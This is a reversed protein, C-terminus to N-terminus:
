ANVEVPKGYQDLLEVIGSTSFPEYNLLRKNSTTRFLYTLREDQLMEERIKVTPTIQAVYSVLMRFYANVDRLADPDVDRIDFIAYNKYKRRLTKMGDEEESINFIVVPTSPYPDLILKEPHITAKIQIKANEFYKKEQISAKLQRVPNDKDCWGIDKTQHNANRDFVRKWVDIGDKRYIFYQHSPSFPVYQDYQMDSYEVTYNEKLTAINMFMVNCDRVRICRDLVVCEAIHGLTIMIARKYKNILRSVKDGIKIGFLNTGALDDDTLITLDKRKLAIDLVNLAKDNAKSNPFEQIIYNKFLQELKNSYDVPTPPTNLTYIDKPIIM